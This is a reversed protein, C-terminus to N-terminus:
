RPHHLAAPKPGGTAWDLLEAPHVVPADLVSALQAMCGVNGAAVVAAGAANVNAAKRDRLRTALEPQLINYVGASGCCLHGEAITRVEFGAEALLRPPAAKIQQGHQLSCAAHYAVSLPPTKVTPPLGVEAIFELIDRAPVSEGVLRRYSKLMTGCGAATTVIADVPGARAWAALNTRAMAKAEDARGLHESLAGCCGEGQALVVEYGARTMLGIAAARVQPAMAPEVCGQLLIVRGRPKGGPTRTPTAQIRPSPPPVLRLLAALPTLKLRLMLPELPRALRGLTLAAALRKPRTLIAPILMRLLREPWPRVHHTEIHARAHDILQAYDVGSPCTTTCALCSLCRDIHTVTSPAPPGGAELMERILEIRGRPSDREDGLLVYTPCTATCFGCHVCKRIAGASAAMEPDALQDATFSTRM